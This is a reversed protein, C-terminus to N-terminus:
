FGHSHSDEMSDGLHIWICCSSLFCENKQSSSGLSFEIPLAVFESRTRFIRPESDGLYIKFFRRPVLMNGPPYLGRQVLTKTAAGGFYRLLFSGLTPNQLRWSETEGFRRKAAQRLHLPKSAKVAALHAKQFFTSTLTWTWRRVSPDKQARLFSDHLPHFNCPPHPLTSNTCKSLRKVEEESRSRNLNQMWLSVHGMDDM